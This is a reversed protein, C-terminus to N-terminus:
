ASASTKKPYSPVEEGSLHRRAARERRAPRVEWFYWYPLYIAIELMLMATGYVGFNLIHEEFTM